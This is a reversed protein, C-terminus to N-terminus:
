QVGCGAVAGTARDMVLMRSQGREAPPQQAILEPPLDFDFDAVRLGSMAGAKGLHALARMRARELAANLEERKAEFEEAPLIPPFM